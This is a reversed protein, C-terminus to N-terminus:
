PCRRRDSRRYSRWVPDRSSRRRCGTKPRVPQAPVKAASSAAAMPQIQRIAMTAIKSSRLIRRSFLVTNQLGGSERYKTVKGPRRAPSKIEQANHRARCDVAPLNGNHYDPQSQILPHMIQIPSAVRTTTNTTPNRTSVESERRAIRRRLSRRPM